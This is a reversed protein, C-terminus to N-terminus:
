LWKWSVGLLIVYSVPCKRDGSTVHRWKSDRSHRRRRAVAKYSTFHATYPLKQCEVAVELHSGSLHRWKRIVEPWRFECTMMEHWTVAEELSITKCSNFHVSYVLKWPEVAVELYRAALHRWKWTVEPLRLDCSTM